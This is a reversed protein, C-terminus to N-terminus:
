EPVPARGPHLLPSLLADPPRRDLSMALQWFAEEDMEAYLTAHPWEGGAERHHYKLRLFERVTEGVRRGLLRDLRGAPPSQTTEALYAVPLPLKAAIKELSASWRGVSATTSYREAVLARGGQRLHARLRPDQLRELCGAAAVTDGIAFMLCNEGHELSGEFGSGIYASTVVPVGKAMAEWAVIPGTEWVSTILLVDARSYVHDGLDHGALAGLFRVRGRQVADALEGRLWEDDPGGGAITLEYPVGRRDLEAVVPGIDSVRKQEQELRGVYAIRLIDGPDRKEKAATDNGDVGYPAYYIRSAAVSTGAAVLECTLRNTCVVADIAGACNGISGIYEAQVAHLAVAVRPARESRARIRNVAPAVDAIHVSVVIDPQAHNLAHVLRRVRGERTGTGYPIRLVQDDPHVDLYADVDHFRGEALGLTVNWDRERLGSVIYDLWTAVGGLPYASPAIFLIHKAVVSMSLFHV